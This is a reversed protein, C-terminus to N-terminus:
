FRDGQNGGEVDSIKFIIRPVGRGVRHSLDAGVNELCNAEDRQM